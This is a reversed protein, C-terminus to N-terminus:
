APSIISVESLLAIFHQPQHQVRLTQTPAGPPSQYMPTVLVGLNSVENEEEEEDVGLKGKKLRDM